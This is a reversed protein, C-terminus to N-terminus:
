LIDMKSIQTYLSIYKEAVMVSDFERVVKERASACLEDYNGANLIWNIGYALDTTDFPTALYGNIKHDIIDLLGTHAFAVVPTECAMAESATQGFSEQLSPVIMVDVASYLTVLSVDDHLHGLYHTKFGFNQSLQPESSGFIVFEINKDTLKHLAESLEQFGKNRDSSANMAGFLVLKKNQPLKWLDRSIKKDIHRYINTNLSNPITNHTYKSLLSSNKSCNTIWESVGIINISELNNLINKKKNFIVRSLDFSNNSGLVPCGGCTNQYKDCSRM